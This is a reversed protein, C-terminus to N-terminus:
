NRNKRENALREIIKSTDYIYEGNEHYWMLVHSIDRIDLHAGKHNWDPYYGIGKFGVMVGLMVTEYLNLGMFHGDIAKGQYHLSDESHKGLNIDHIIFIGKSNGFEKKAISIMKDAKWMLRPDIEDIKTILPRGFLDKENLSFNNLQKFAEKTM